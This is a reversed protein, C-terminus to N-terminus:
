NLLEGPKPGLLLFLLIPLTNSNSKTLTALSVQHKLLWVAPCGRSQAKQLSLLAEKLM